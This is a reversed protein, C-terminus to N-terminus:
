AKLAAGQADSEVEGFMPGVVFLGPLGGGDRSLLVQGQEHDLRREETARRGALRPQASYRLHALAVDPPQQDYARHRHHVPRVSAAGPEHSARISARLGRISTATACALLITRM